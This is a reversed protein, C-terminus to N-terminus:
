KTAAGLENLAQHIDRMHSFSRDFVADAPLAYGRQYHGGGSFHWAQMGAARAGQLGYLSDEVVVCHAPQIGMMEAAYLFLDPAPKGNKVMTSTYVHGKFKDILGAVTLSHAARDPASSTAVCCPIKLSDILNAIGEIPKLEDEFRSRLETRFNEPFDHDPARGFKVSLIELGQKFSKGVLETFFFQHDIDIGVKKLESIMTDASLLESDILVGDCDFIVLKPVFSVDASREDHIAIDAIVPLRDIKIRLVHFGNRNL